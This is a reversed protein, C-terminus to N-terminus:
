KELSSLLAEAHAAANDMHVGVEIIEAKKATLITKTEEPDDGKQPATIHAMWDMMEEDAKALDQMAMELTDLKTFIVSNSDAQKAQEIIANLKSEIEGNEQMKLMIEDHVQMTDAWLVEQESQCSVNIIAITAISIALFIKRM